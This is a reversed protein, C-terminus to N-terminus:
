IWTTNGDRTSFKFADKYIWCIRQHANAYLWESNEDYETGITKVIIAGSPKVAFAYVMKNPTDYVLVDRDYRSHSILNDLYKKMSDNQLVEMLGSHGLDIYGQDDPFVISLKKFREIARKIAHDTLVVKFANIYLNVSM